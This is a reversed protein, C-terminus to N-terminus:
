ARSPAPKTVDDSGNDNNAVYLTKGDPSIAIGNPKVIEHTVEHVGGDEDIRYVARHELERKEHGLYHPDTFYIRGKADLCLDNPANFRKGMYSDAHVTREKSRLSRSSVCRGGYDSGECAM